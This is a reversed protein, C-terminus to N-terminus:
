RESPNSKWMVRCLSIMEGSVWIENAPMKELSAFTFRTSVGPVSRPYHISASILLKRQGDIILSRHDYTVNAGGSSGVWLCLLSFLLLPTFPMGMKPRSHARQLQLREGEAEAIYLCSVPSLLCSCSVSHTYDQYIPSLSTIATVVSLYIWRATTLKTMAIM